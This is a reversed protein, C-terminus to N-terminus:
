AQEAGRHAHRRNLEDIYAQSEARAEDVHGAELFPLMKEIIRCAVEINLRYNGFDPLLPTGFRRHASLFAAKMESAAAEMRRQDRDATANDGFSKATKLAGIVSRDARRERLEKQPDTDEPPKGSQDASRGSMGPPVSQKQPVVARFIAMGLYITILVLPVYNWWHAALWSPAGAIMPFNAAKVAMIAAGLWLSVVGLWDLQSKPM